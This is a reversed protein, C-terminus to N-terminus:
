ISFYAVSKNTNIVLIKCKKLNINIKSFLINLSVSEWMVNALEDIRVGIESMEGSYRNFFTKIFM